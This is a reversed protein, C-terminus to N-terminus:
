RKLFVNLIKPNDSLFQGIDQIAKDAYENHQQLIEPHDKYMANVNHMAAFSSFIGAIAIFEPLNQAVIDFIDM